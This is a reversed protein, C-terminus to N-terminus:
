IRAEEPLSDLVRVPIAAVGDTIAHLIRHMGDIIEGLYMLVPYRYDAREIKEIHHSWTPHALAVNGWTRFRRYAELAQEPSFFEGRMDDWCNEGLLQHELQTTEMEVPEVDLTLRILKFVDYGVGDLHLTHAHGPSSARPLDM